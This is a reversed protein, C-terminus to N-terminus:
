RGAPAELSGVRRLRADGDPTHFVIEEDHVSVTVRRSGWFDYAVWEGGHVPAMGVYALTPTLGRGGAIFAAEDTGGVVEGDVIDVRTHITADGVLHRLHTRLFGDEQVSYVVEQGRYRGYRSEQTRAAALTAGLPDDPGPDGEALLARVLRTARTPEETEALFLNAAAQDLPELSYREGIRHVRLRAGGDAAYLGPEPALGSVGPQPLAPADGGELIDVLGWAVREALAVDGRNALVVVAADSDLLRLYYTNFGEPMIHGDHAATRERSRESDWITWGYGYDGLGPTLMEDVAARSLVTETRLAQEWRLMDELTTVVGAAGILERGFPRRLLADGQPLFGNYGIALPRGQWAARETVISTSGMGAPEFLYRRTLTEYSAGGIREALAALFAYGANSYDFREGPAYELGARLGAALVDAGSPLTADSSTDLRLLGSTHSLLQRITVESMEAPVDPLYEDIHDDTALLGRDQLAMVLAATFQKTVSAIFMGTRTAFPIERELDAYGVARELLVDGGRTVGVAGSFGFAELSDLYAEMGARTGSAAQKALGSAPVTGAAFATVLALVTASARRRM